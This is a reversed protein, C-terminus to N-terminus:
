FEQSFCKWHHRQIEKVTEITQVCQKQPFLTSQIPEPAEGLLVNMCALASIAISNLDYGGELAIALKGNAVGKLLHTMQGYGAPTVKCKGIPDNIAADFGASVIVIEPNFEMAIPIVIEHFAYIYDADTMGACPWPINVTKGLGKDHGTYSACGKLDSPYFSGDEFRHLSIYLVNPDDSFINQTGNGFHIDWDVILTKKVNLRKMCYRTAIAVNNFLCFGMPVDSEAHHGPPRIIAFANKIEDRVVAEILNCLSGVAYLGSEFSNSNLYISDYDKEMNMYDARSKLDSTNRLTRYHNINHVLLIEEKTARRSKIRKCESLLGRREIINFIKFIRRPDEPHIETDDPTAHYSMATDYVFGTKLSRRPRSLNAQKSYKTFVASLSDDNHSFANGYSFADIESEDDASSLYDVAFQSPDLSNAIDNYTTVKNRSERAPLKRMLAASKVLEEQHAITDLPKSIEQLHSLAQSYPLKTQQHNTQPALPFVKQLTSEDLDSDSDLEDVEEKEQDDDDIAELSSNLKPEASMAEIDQNANSVGEDDSSENISASISTKKIPIRVKPKKQTNLRMPLPQTSKDVPVQRASAPSQKLASTAQKTITFELSKLDQSDSTSSSPLLERAKAKLSPAPDDNEEDSSLVITEIEGNTKNKSVLQNQTANPLIRVSRLQIADSKPKKHVSTVEKESARKM